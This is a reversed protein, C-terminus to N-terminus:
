NQVLFSKKRTEKEPLYFEVLVILSFFFFFSFKLQLSIFSFMKKTQFVLLVTLFYFDAYFYILFNLLFRQNENGNM